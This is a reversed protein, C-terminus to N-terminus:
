LVHRERVIGLAYADLASCVDDLADDNYACVTWPVDKFSRVLQEFYPRDVSGFSHGYVFIRNPPQAIQNIFQIVAEHQYEKEFGALLQAFAGYAKSHYYEYNEEDDYQRLIETGTLSGPAYGLILRSVGVEGHLHLIRSPDVDYLHQLTHTYNFTLFYDDPGFLDSFMAKPLVDELKDDANQAFEELPFTLLQEAEHIIGDRDSERDSLLDPSFAGLHELVLDVDPYALQEEVDSWLDGGVSYSEWEGSFREAAIALIKLDPDYRTPLDHQLDFGNGFVFLTSM